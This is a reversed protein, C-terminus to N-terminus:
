FTANVGLTFTRPKPYQFFFINQGWRDSGQSTGEPDYGQFDSSHILFANNVGIYARLASLNLSKLANSDFTYGVQILNGRLYSGDAVWRSDAATNQTKAFGAANGVAQVITNPNSPSWANKVISALGNTMGFRDETSHLFQQYVDVGAVFQLDLTFDVNGYRLTNIFSGTIDPLGKGLIEPSDSRKAQGIKEGETQIGERKYGWFSALSEGKRLIVLNNTVFWPGTLIDEDNEGLAEIRNKNYNLNLTTTWNFRKSNFNVTNLMFDIGQNSVKGINDM